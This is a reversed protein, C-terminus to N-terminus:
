TSPAMTPRCNGNKESITGNQNIQANAPKRPMRSIQGAIRTQPTDNAIGCNRIEFKMLGQITSMPAESIEIPQRIPNRCSRAASPATATAPTACGRRNRWRCAAPGASSSRSRQGAGLNPTRQQGPDDDADDQQDPAGAPELTQDIRDEGPVIRDHPQVVHDLLHRRHHRLRCRLARHEGEGIQREGAGAHQERRDDGAEDHAERRRLSMTSYPRVM